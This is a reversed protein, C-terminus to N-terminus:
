NSKESLLGYLIYTLSRDKSLYHDILTKLEKERGKFIHEEPTNSINWPIDIEDSLVDESEIEYTAEYVIPNLDKGQYKAILLFKVNASELSSFDSSVFSEGSCDGSSLEGEHLVKYEKGDITATVYFSEATSDGNNTVVISIVGNGHEDKTIFAPKSSINLMPLTRADREEIQRSIEKLWNNILISFFTNGYYTTTDAITKQAGLLTQQARVLIRTRENEKRGAYPKLIEIVEILSNISIIDTNTM